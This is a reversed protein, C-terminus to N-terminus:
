LCLVPRLATSASKLVQWRNNAGISSFLVRDADPHLDIDTLLRRNPSDTVTELVPEGRINRLVALRNAVEARPLQCNGQWNQPLGPVRTEREIVLIRDFDLLPNALLAERQLTKLEEITVVKELRALFEGARPYADPHGAALDEIALRLPEKDFAHLPLALLFAFFHVIITKVSM